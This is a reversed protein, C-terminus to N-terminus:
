WLYGFFLLILANCHFFKSESDDLYHEDGLWVCVGCWVVGVGVCVCVCLLLLLLLFFFFSIAM